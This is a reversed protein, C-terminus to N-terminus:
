NLGEAYSAMIGYEIGNHVMKVFHGAGSPGCHLYGREATGNTKERGPTRQAAAIGPALAAFIPDLREVVATKGGIMLCYGREAGWVGGSTGVDIYHIGRRALTSARRVAM